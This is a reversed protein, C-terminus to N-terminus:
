PIALFSIFHFSKKGKSEKKTPHGASVNRTKRIQKLKPYNKYSANIGLAECLHEVANQQLFLAQLLGYLRLYKIGYESVEILNEYAKIALDTDEIVYLSSCLQNWKPKDQILFHQKITKNILESIARIAEEISKSKKM